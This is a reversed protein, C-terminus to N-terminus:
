SAGACRGARCIEMQGHGQVSRFDRPGHPQKYRHADYPRDHTLGARKETASLLADNKRCLTWLNASDLDIRLRSARMIPRRQINNRDLHSAASDVISALTAM